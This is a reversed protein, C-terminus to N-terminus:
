VDLELDLANMVNNIDNAYTLGMGNGGGLDSGAFLLGVAWGRADVILAGSDGGDSFADAGAGEIEFQSDFRTPGIEEMDVVINDVEIATVRGRTIGTTRGIKGVAEGLVAGKSRSGLLPGLERLDTRDNALNGLDCIAADVLNIGAPDLAAWELLGGVGDQKIRGGDLPGPQLIRDGPDALGDLALVHANSLIMRQGDARRKPFAGLTGATIAHHAISAGMVLPRHRGRQWRPLIPGVYQVDVEGGGLQSLAALTAYDRQLQRRQIRVALRYGDPGTASTGVGLAITAASGRARRTAVAPRGHPADTAVVEFRNRLLAAAEAKLSRASDLRM